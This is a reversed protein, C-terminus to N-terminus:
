PSLYNDGFVPRYAPAPTRPREADAAPSAATGALPCADNPRHSRRAATSSRGHCASSHDLTGSGSALPNHTEDGPRQTPASGRGSKATASAVPLAAPSAALNDPSASPRDTGGPAVGGPVASLAGGSTATALVLKTGGLKQLEAAPDSAQLGAETLATPWALAVAVGVLSPTQEAGVSALKWTTL